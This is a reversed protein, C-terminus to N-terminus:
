LSQAPVRFLASVPGLTILSPLQSGLLLALQWSFPLQRRDLSVALGLLCRLSSSLLMATRVESGAEREAQAGWRGFGVQPRNRYVPGYLLLPCAPSLHIHTQSSFPWCSLLM